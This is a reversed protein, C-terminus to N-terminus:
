GEAAIKESPEIITPPAVEVKPARFQPYDLIPKSDKDLLAGFAIYSKFGMRGCEKHATTGPTFSAELAGAGNAVAWECFARVLRDGIGWHRFKPTVYLAEGIAYTKPKGVTRQLLWGAIFGKAVGGDLAVIAKWNPCTRLSRLAFFVFAEQEEDLNDVNPYDRKEATEIMERYMPGVHQLDSPIMDRVKIDKM